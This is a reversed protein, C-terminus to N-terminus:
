CWLHGFYKVFLKMGDTEKKRLREIVKINTSFGNTLKYNAEFGRAIKELIQKWKKYTNAAGFGPYGYATKFYRIARPMWESLYSDLSWLDCDAYGYWGRQFFYKTQKFLDRISEIPYRWNLYWTFAVRKRKMLAEQLLRVQM